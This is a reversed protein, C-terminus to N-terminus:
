KECGLKELEDDTKKAKIATMCSKFRQDQIALAIEQKIAAAEKEDSTKFADFIKGIAGFYAGIIDAPLKFLAVLEGDTSQDYKSPVGDSFTFDAKNDSFFTRSIPMFYTPSESPSFVIAKQTREASSVTIEYPINQRYFIGSTSESNIEEKDKLSGTKNPATPRSLTIVMGCLSINKNTTDTTHIIKTHMGPSCTAAASMGRIQGASDALNILAENVQSTTTSTASQILGSPSIGVKLENKGLLNNKHRLVYRKSIDAYAATESIEINTVKSNDDLTLTVLFDKKPMYYVLGDLSEQKPHSISEISSCSIILTAMLLITLFNRMKM